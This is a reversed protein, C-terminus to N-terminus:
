ADLIEKLAELTTQIDDKTTFPGPSFRTTGKPFTGLSKHAAPACHLGVRTEIGYRSSLTFAIDANDRDPVDISFVPVRGEM